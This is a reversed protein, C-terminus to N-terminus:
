HGVKDPPFQDVTYGGKVFGLRDPEDSQRVPVAQASFPRCLHQAAGLSASPPTWLGRGSSQQAVPEGRVWSAHQSRGYSNGPSSLSADSYAPNPCDGLSSSRNNPQSSAVSESISAESRVCGAFRAALAPFSNPPSSAASPCSRLWARTLADCSRHM